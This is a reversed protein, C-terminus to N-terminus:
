YVTPLDISLHHKDPMIDSSVNVRIHTNIHLHTNENRYILECLGMTPSLLVFLVTCTAHLDIM